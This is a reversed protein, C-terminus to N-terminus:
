ASLTITIPLEVIRTCKIGRKYEFRTFKISAFYVQKVPIRIEFGIYESAPLKMELRRAFTYLCWCLTPWHEVFTLVTCHFNICHIRYETPWKWREVSTSASEILKNVYSARKQALLICDNLKAGTLTCGGVVTCYTWCILKLYVCM